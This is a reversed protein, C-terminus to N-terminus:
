LMDELSDRDSGAGAGGDASAAPAARNDWAGAGTNNAGATSRGPAAGWAGFGSSPAGSARDNAQSAWYAGALSQANAASTHRAVAATPADGMSFNAFLDQTTTDVQSRDVNYFQKPKGNLVAGWVREGALEAHFAHGVYSKMGLTGGPLLTGQLFSGRPNPGPADWYLQLTDGYDNYFRAGIAVPIKRAPSPRAPRRDKAIGNAAGVRRLAAIRDAAKMRVGRGDATRYVPRIKVEDDSSDDDDSDGSDVHAFAPPVSRSRSSLHAQLATQVNWGTAELQQRAIEPSCTTLQVFKAICADHDFVTNIGDFQSVLSNM